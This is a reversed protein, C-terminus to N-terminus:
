ASAAARPAPAGMRRYVEITRRATAEWTLEQARRRGRSGLDRAREPDDLLVEVASAIEAPRGPDALLAADGVVEPISGARSAIVPCGCAMAELPPFGFGEDLSTYVLARASAYLEALRADSVFGLLHVDRALGLRGVAGELGADGWGRAGALLLPPATGRRAKVQALAELVARLNKRPELTGVSLLFPEAPVQAPAAPAPPALRTGLLSVSSREPPVGLDRELAARTAASSALVHDSWRAAARWWRRTRRRRLPTFWEPHSFLFTDHVSTLVPVGLRGALPVPATLHLLDLGASRVRRPLV